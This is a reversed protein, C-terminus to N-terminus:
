PQAAIHLTRYCTVRRRFVGGESEGGDGGFEPPPPPNPPKANPYKTADWRRSKCKPNVCRKPPKAKDRPVWKWACMQCEFVELPIVLKTTEAM